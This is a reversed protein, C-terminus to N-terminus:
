KFGKTLSFLCGASFVSLLMTLSGYIGIIAGLILFSSRSVPHLTMKGNAVFSFFISHLLLLLSNGFLILNHNHLLPLPTCQLSLFVDISCWSSLTVPFHSADPALSCELFQWPHNLQSYGFISAFNSLMCLRLILSDNSIFLKSVFASYLLDMLTNFLSWPLITLM